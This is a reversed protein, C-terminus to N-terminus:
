QWHSRRVIRLEKADRGADQLIRGYLPTGNSVSEVDIGTAWGRSGCEVIRGEQLLRWLTTPQNDPYLRLLQDVPSEDNVVSSDGFVNQM